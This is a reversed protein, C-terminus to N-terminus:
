LVFGPDSDEAEALLVTVRSVVICGLAVGLLEPNGVDVERTVVVSIVTVVAVEEEM